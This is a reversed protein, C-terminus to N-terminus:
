LIKQLSQKQKEVYSSFSLRQFYKLYKDVYEHSSFLNLSLKGDLFLNLLYSEDLLLWWLHEIFFPASLFKAFNVPFCRYWLRKKLLTVPRFGAVKNFFLSQLLYKEIFKACNRLVGKRCFM